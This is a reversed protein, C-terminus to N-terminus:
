EGLAVSDDRQQALAPHAFDITGVVQNKALGDGEFEKRGGGSLVFLKENAEAVFDARRPADRM